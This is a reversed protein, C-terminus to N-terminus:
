FLTTLWERDGKHLIEQKVKEKYLVHCIEGFLDKRNSFVYRIYKWFYVKLFGYIGEM